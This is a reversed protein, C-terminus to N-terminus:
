VRNIQTLIVCSGQVFGGGEGGFKLRVHDVHGGGGARWNQNVHDFHHLVAGVADLLPGLAVLVRLPPQRHRPQLAICVPLLGDVEDVEVEGPLCPLPGARHLPLVHVQCVVTSVANQCISCHLISCLLIDVVLTWIAM